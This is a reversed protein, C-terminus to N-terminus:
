MTSRTLPGQPTERILVDIENILVEGEHGSCREFAGGGLVMVSPMLIEVSSKQHVCVNLGNCPDQYYRPKPLCWEIM